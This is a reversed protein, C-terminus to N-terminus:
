SSSEMASRLHDRLQRFAVGRHSLEGKTAQDVEAFSRGLGPHYFLPDYGFGGLGEPEFLISGEVEGRFLSPPADGDVLALVCIYRATREPEPVAGLLQLLHRNNAQDRSSGSALATEPAFRKSHVGPRGGLADVAIGSDDAVTLIGSRSAFYSAKAAANEEFTDFAEISAEEAREEIAVDDLGLLELGALGSLIGRAERLKDPSRTALLLRMM